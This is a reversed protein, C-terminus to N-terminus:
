VQDEAKKNPDSLDANPAPEVPAPAPTPAPAPAPSVVVPPQPQDRALSAVIKAVEANSDDVLSQLQESTAGGQNALATLQDELSDAATILQDTAVAQARLAAQVDAFSVM